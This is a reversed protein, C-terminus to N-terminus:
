MARGDSDSPLNESHYIPIVSPHQLLATVRAEVEFRRRAEKGEARDQRMRKLAIRRGLIEDHALFVEGMGGTGLRGLIRYRGIRTPMSEPPPADPDPPFASVTSDEKRLPRTPANKPEERM